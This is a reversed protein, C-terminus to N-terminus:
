STAFPDLMQRIQFRMAEVTFPKQVFAAPENPGFRQVVEQETFGSMLLVCVDARIMRLRRLVEDGAMGPMTLDLIVLDYHSFREFLAIAENGNAAADVELGFSQLMRNAVFRVTDEDDVLLVRGTHRWPTRSVPPKTTTPRHVNKAVPLLLRFVSGSDPSTEVFLAGLHRRVIGLVAALGLGRGAFKTTFFPDFIRAVTEPTMGCGTDRVEIFRESSMNTDRFINGYIFFNSSQVGSSGFDTFFIGVGAANDHFNNNRITCNDSRMVYILNAHVDSNITEITHIDSNQVTVRSVYCFFAMACSGAFTDNDFVLDAPFPTTPSVNYTRIVLCRVDNVFGLPRLGLVNVAPGYSGINRFTSNFSGYGEILIGRGGSVDPFNVRIGDKVQGDIVTYRGPGNTLSSSILFLRNM